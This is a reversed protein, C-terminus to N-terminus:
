GAVGLPLTQMSFCMLWQLTLPLTQMSFCMLWQTEQSLLPCHRRQAVLGYNNGAIFISFFFFHWQCVSGDDHGSCRWPCHRCQSVLGDNHDSCCWPTIGLFGDTMMNGAVGLPLISTGIWWWKGQLVLPCYWQSVRGVGHDRCCWPYFFISFCMWWPSIDSLFVDLMMKSAFGRPSISFDTMM